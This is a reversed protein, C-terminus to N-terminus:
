KAVGALVFWVVRLNEGLSVHTGFKTLKQTHKLGWFHLENNPM